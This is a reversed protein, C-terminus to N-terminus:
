SAETFEHVLWACAADKHEHKPAFSCLMAKLAGYFASRDVGPKLRLGFQDLSGGKYFLTGVVDNAPTNGRRFQEPITEYPPYDRIDAGFACDLNTFPRFKHSGLQLGVPLVAPQMTEVEKRLRQRKGMM